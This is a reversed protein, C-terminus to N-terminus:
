EAPEGSGITSSLSLDDGNEDDDVVVVDVDVDDVIRGLLRKAERRAKKRLGRLNLPLELMETGKPTTTSKGQMTTMRISTSKTLCGADGPLINIGAPAGGAM